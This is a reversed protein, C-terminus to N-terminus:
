EPHAPRRDFHRPSWDPGFGAYDAFWKASDHSEWGGKDQLAQPLDWHFLTCFPAIGAENLADALRLYFDIGAQNPAGVGNPFIRPWSVSFRFSKLGLRQMLAIDNRYRHYFDDAVDGTDGAFTKGATHSFTDWVSMGRGGERFAGEVQYSATASGWLFGQPFRRAQGATVQGALLSSRTQAGVASLPLAAASGGLLRAMARRTLQIPKM